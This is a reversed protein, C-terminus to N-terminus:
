YDLSLGLKYNRLPMPYGSIIQYNNNLINNIELKIQARVKEALSFNYYVNGETLGEAPLFYLNEKDTYRIGTYSYFLNIGANFFEIGANIKLQHAPIYFLKKNLSPDGAFGSSKNVSNTYSYNLDINAAINMTIQKISNLDSSFVQSLTNGENQPMWLGSNGPSWVIKNVANINSYTFEIVNESFLSFGFIFGADFNVSTEPVLYTNGLDKWYLENFTPASFNNGISTKFNLNLNDSPRFNIGFKGSVVKKNIDSIFDYRVSPFIKLKTGSNIESVLYLGTQIREADGSTENSYLSSYSLEYGSILQINRKQFNIQSSNSLFINKYYSNIYIGNNYGSLNNQFNLQSRFSINKNFMTEFSAISNWNKDSQESASPESGTEIGPIERKILNYFSSLRLTSFQSVSYELNLTSFSTEYASNLREKLIRSTGNVFYYRYNNDSSEKSYNFDVGFRDISKALTMQFFKQNYSGFKAIIGANFGSSIGSKTIVNVVGGVSESGYISSSGNNLVEIREINGKSLTSLDVQANQASNLKFGNMLVLTHEAGLGNLSITGLSANGGYSKIFVGGALQLVDALSEGNKNLIENETILQIKVPSSFIDASVKYSYVGIEETKYKSSDVDQAISERCSFVSLVFLIIM